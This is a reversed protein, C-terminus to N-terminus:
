GGTIAREMKAADAAARKDKSNRMTALAAAKDGLAWECWAARAYFLGASAPFGARDLERALALDDGSPRIGPDRELVCRGTGDDGLALAAVLLWATM